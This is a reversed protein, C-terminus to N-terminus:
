NNVEYYIFVELDNEKENYEHQISITSYNLGDIYENFDKLIREIQDALDYLDYVQRHAKYLRIRKM